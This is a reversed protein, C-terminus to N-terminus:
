IVGIEKFEQILGFRRAISEFFISIGKKDSESVNSTDAWKKWRTAMYRYMEQRENYYRTYKSM